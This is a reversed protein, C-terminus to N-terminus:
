SSMEFWVAKGGGPLREAGWDSAVDGVLVLGYGGLRVAQEAADALVPLVPSQDLVEVRVWDPPSRFAARLECRGRGHSVANTVLESTLLIADRLFSPAARHGVLNLLADRAVRASVPLRDLKIQIRAAPAGENM